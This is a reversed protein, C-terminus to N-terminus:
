AFQIGAAAWREEPGDFMRSRALKNLRRDEELTVVALRWHRNVLENLAEQNLEGKRYLNVIRRAFPRRPAGHEVV